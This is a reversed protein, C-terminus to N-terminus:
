KIMKEIEFPQGREWMTREPKRLLEVDSFVRKGKNTFKDSM